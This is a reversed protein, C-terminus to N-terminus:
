RNVPMVLYKFLKNGVGSILLPKNVGSSKLEIREADLSNFSETLYRANVKVEIEEGNSENNISTTTQGIDQNIASVECIKNKPNILLNVHHFKDAFITSVKLAETLELQSILVTTSFNKPIIQRYDPYVGDIIRSTILFSSHYLSLQNKDVKIVIEGKAGEIVRSIDNVNKIPIIISPTENILTLPIKKEALRFSDTSVFVLYEGDHYLYVSAIEPKIDSTASAYVVSKLGLLFLSIPLSFNVGDIVQPITPFDDPLFGKIKSHHNFTDVLVIGDKLEFTIIETPPITGLVGAILQAPLCISGNKSDFVTLYFEVGVELNTVKLTLKNDKILFFITNLIPLSSNKGAIKEILLIINKIEKYNCSFKM